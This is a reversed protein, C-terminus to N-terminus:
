CIEEEKLKPKITCAAYFPNFFSAAKCENINVTNVAKEAKLSLCSFHGPHVRALPKSSARFIYSFVKHFLRKKKGHMLETIKYLNM